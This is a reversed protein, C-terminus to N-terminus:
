SIKGVGGGMVLGHQRLGYSFLYADHSKGSELFFDREVGIARFGLRKFFLHAGLNGESIHIDIMSRNGNPLKDILQTVLMRGLGRRRMPQSVAINILYFSGSMLEYLMYGEVRGDVEIVKGIRGWPKLCQAFDSELWPELFSGKDIGIAHKVDDRTMWRIMPKM